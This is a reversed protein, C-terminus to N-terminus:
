VHNVGPLLWGELTCRVTMSFVALKAPDKQWYQSSGEGNGVNVFDSNIDIDVYGFNPGQPGSVLKNMVERYLLMPKVLSPSM